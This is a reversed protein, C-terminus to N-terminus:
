RKPNNKSPEGSGPSLFANLMGDPAAPLPSVVFGNAELEAKNQDDESLDLKIQDWIAQARRRADPSGLRLAILVRITRDLPDKSPISGNAILDALPLESDVDGYAIAQELLFRAGAAHDRVSGDAVMADVIPRAADIVYRAYLALFAQKFEKSDDLYAGAALQNIAPFYARNFAKAFADRAKARWANANNPDLVTKEDYARGLQFSFRPQDLKDVASACAAIAADADKMDALLVGPALRWPDLPFAALRDCDEVASAPPHAILRVTGLLYTFNRLLENHDTSDPDLLDPSNEVVRAMVDTLNSLSLDAALTGYQVRGNADTNWIQKFFIDGAEGMRDQGSEKDLSVLREAAAIAALREALPLQAYSGSRAAAIVYWDLADTLYRALDASKPKAATLFRLLAATDKFFNAAEDPKSDVNLIKRGVTWWRWTEPALEKIILDQGVGRAILGLLKQQSEKFAVVLDSSINHEDTAAEGSRRVVYAFSRAALEPENAEFDHALKFVDGWNPANSADVGLLAGADTTAQTLTEPWAGLQRIADALVDRAATKAQDDARSSGLVNGALEARILAELLALKPEAPWQEQLRQFALEFLKLQGTESQLNVNSLNPVWAPAAPQGASARAPGTENAEARIEVVEEPTFGRVLNARLVARPLDQRQEPAIREAILLDKLAQRIAQPSPSGQLLLLALAANAGADHQAARTEFRTRLEALENPAVSGSALLDAVLAASVPQDSHLSGLLFWHSMPPGLSETGSLHGVFQEALGPDGETAGILQAVGKLFPSAQQSTALRRWAAPDGPHDQVAKLCPDISDNCASEASNSGPATNLEYGRAINDLDDPSRQNAILLDSLQVLERDSIDPSAKVKPPHDIDARLLGETTALLLHAGDEFAVAGRYPFTPEDWSSRTDGLDAAAAPVPLPIVRLDAPVDSAKGDDTEQAVIVLTSGDPAFEAALATKSSWLLRPRRNINNSQLDVIYVQGTSSLAAVYKGSVGVSISILQRKENPFVIKTNEIDEGRRGPTLRWFRVTGDDSVSIIRDNSLFLAQRVEDGHGTLQIVPTLKSVLLGAGLKGILQSATLASSKDVPVIWVSVTNQYSGDATVVYKGDPSFAVSHPQHLGEFSKWSPDDKRWLWGADDGIVAITEGDPSIAVRQVDDPFEYTKSPPDGGTVTVTKGSATATRPSNLAHAVARVDGRMLGAYGSDLRPAFAYVPADQGGSVDRALVAVGDASIAQFAWHSGAHATFDAWGDFRVPTRLKGLFSVGSFAAPPSAALSQPRDSIVVPDDKDFMVLSGPRGQPKCVPADGEIWLAVRGDPWSVLGANGDDRLVVHGLDSATDSQESGAAAPCAIAVLRSGSRSDWVEANGDKDLSLVRKGDLSVALDGISAATQADFHEAEHGSSTDWVSITSAATALFSGDSSLALATPSESANSLHPGPSGTAVNWLKVAGDATVAAARTGHADIVLSRADGSDVLLRAGYDTAYADRLAQMAQSYARTDTKGPLLNIAQLALQRARDLDEPQPRPARARTWDQASRAFLEQDHLDSKKQIQMAVVVAVVLGILAPVSVWPAIRGFRRLAAYRRSADLFRLAQPLDGGYRRAWAENPAQRERWALANELEPAVWPSAKKNEWDTAAASLRRWLAASAFEDGMWERLKDWQRILSEHSIDITTDPELPGTAPTLFDCGPARFTEIIPALREPEVQAVLAADRLTIPHRRADAVTSGETLSRFLIEALAQDDGPLSQLVETAHASLAVKLGGIWADYDAETLRTPGTQEEKARRWMRMMAHQMLPLQDPDNGMENLVRNVLAPEIVGDYVKIPGTVADALQDRTLRPTLFQGRNIAEALGAFQACEGLYDSRMTLVVYIRRDPAAAAGVLVDIFSSAVEEWAHRQRAEDLDTSGTDAIEVGRYRFLEEFQDVLLLLNNRPPLHAEDLWQLLGAPGRSLAAELLLADHDFREAETSKILSEALARLPRSGPRFQAFTWDSGARALLGLELADLLGTFVLSSKGSGSTGTVALFRHAALRSVMEDIVSERGFFIDAEDRRFPRLGPFLETSM